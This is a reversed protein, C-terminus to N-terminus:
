TKACASPRFSRSRRVTPASRFFALELADRPGVLGGPRGDCTLQGSAEDLGGLARIAERQGNGEAGAFGVIEGRRVDFAIGQFGPGSLDKVSLM